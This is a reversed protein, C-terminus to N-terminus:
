WVFGRGSFREFEATSKLANSGSEPRLGCEALVHSDPVRFLTGLYRHTEPAAASIPRKDSRVLFPNLEQFEGPNHFREVRWWSSM